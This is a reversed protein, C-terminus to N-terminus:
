MQHEAWHTASNKSAEAQLGTEVSIESGRTDLIWYSDLCFDGYIAIRANKIKELLTKIEISTLNM